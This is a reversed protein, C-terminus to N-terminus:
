MAKRHQVSFASSIGAEAADSIWSTLMTMLNMGKYMAKVAKERLCPCNLKTLSEMM